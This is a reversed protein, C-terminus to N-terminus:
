NFVIKDSVFIYIMICFGVNYLIYVVSLCILVINEVFHAKQLKETSTKEMVDDFLLTVIAHWTCIASLMIM